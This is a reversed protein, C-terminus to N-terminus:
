NVAPTQSQGCSNYLLKLAKNLRTYNFLISPTISWLVNKLLLLFKGWFGVRSFPFASWVTEISQWDNFVKYFASCIQQILDESFIKVAWFKWENVGFLRFKNFASSPFSSDSHFHLIYKVVVVWSILDFSLARRMQYNLLKQLQLAITERLHSDLAYITRPWPTMLLLTSIERREFWRKSPTHLFHNVPKLYWQCEIGLFTEVRIRILMKSIQFKLKTISTSLFDFCLCIHCSSEDGM